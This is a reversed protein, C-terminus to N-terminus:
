AGEHAYVVRGALLTHTVEGRLEWGLFPTNHGRSALTRATLARHREPDFVCVDAVAGIGLQGADIGLVGAPGRTIRAIAEALPLVGEDVLKLTLGLLTDLGSIGPETLGFPDLKADAEHPQHDSCVALLTGSAVAARLAERDRLTRLPPLVHANADFRGIDQECLHLHHASADASVPLGEAQARAVMACARASSLRGIHARVGTEEILALDRGLAATEAAVPIGALGLRAAIQGDHACGAAGLWPDLPTLFVTLGHSAAYELARRLVLTSAVPALANGVGVCGAEKLAAMEALQEGKLGRTLAGLTLVHAFGAAEARRRILEVVATEDIVPDTDAPVVLTTIGNRAAAHTECAITAKHEAGPERLRACLDILGPCVIRGSADISREPVFGGPPADIGVVRGEAIYLDHRGDRGHAPDILRGGRIAIRM